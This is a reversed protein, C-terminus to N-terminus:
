TWITMIYNVRQTENLLKLKEIKDILKVLTAQSVDEALWHDSVVQKVTDYMLWRYRTYVATMFVRDSENEIAMICIPLM